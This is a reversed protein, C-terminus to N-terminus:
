EFGLEEQLEKVDAQKHVKLWAELSEIPKVIEWAIAERDGLMRSVKQLAAELDKIAAHALTSSASM